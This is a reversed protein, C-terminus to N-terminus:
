AEEEFAVRKMWLNATQQAVAHTWTQNLVVLTTTTIRMQEGGGNISADLGELKENVIISVIVNEANMLQVIASWEQIM